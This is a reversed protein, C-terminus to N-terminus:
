LNHYRTQQSQIQQKHSHNTSSTVASVASNLTYRAM